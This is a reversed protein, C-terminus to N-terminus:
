RNMTKDDELWWKRNEEKQASIIDMRDPSAGNAIMYGIWGNTAYKSKVMFECTGGDLENSDPIRYDGWNCKKTEKSMYNSWIGEFLNNSFTDAVFLLANYKLQGKEDLYFDTSFTGSLIGTGKQKADEFFEYTGLVSGQTLEPFYDETKYIKAEKIILKGQFNCINNRVRTKGCIFYELKNKPNQIASCFHIYFRQYNDGIYGLPEKREVITTDNEVQFKNLTWLHSIDYKTLEAIFNTTKPQQACVLGSILLGVITFIQRM